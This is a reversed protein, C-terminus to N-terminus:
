ATLGLQVLLAHRISSRTFWNNVEGVRELLRFKDLSIPQECLARSTQRLGVEGYILVHTPRQRKQIQTTLPVATVLPSHENSNDNSVIIVPRKGYIIHNGVLVPLDAFWIEYQHCIKFDTAKKKKM